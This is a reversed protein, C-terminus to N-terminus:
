VDYFVAEPMKGTKLFCKFLKWLMKCALVDIRDLDSTVHWCNSCNHIVIRGARLQRGMLYIAQKPNERREEFDTFCDKQIRIMGDMIGKENLHKSDNLNYSGYAYVFANEDESILRARAGRGRSM